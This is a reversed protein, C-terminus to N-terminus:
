DDGLVGDLMPLRCVQLGNEQQATPSLFSPTPPVRGARVELVWQSGPISGRRYANLM